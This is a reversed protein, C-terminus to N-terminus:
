PQNILINSRSGGILLPLESRASMPRLNVRKISSKSDRAMKAVAQTPETKYIPAVQLALNSALASRFGPPLSVTTALSPFETFPTRTLLKMSSAASPVPYVYLTGTTMSPRYNIRDPYTSTATKYPIAEYKEDTIIDLDISSGLYLIYANAIEVPRVTNLDGGPGITYSSQAAVMTLSEDRFAYCMLRENQWADLLDNLAVLCDAAEDPDDVSEGPELKGLLQVARDIITQATAM